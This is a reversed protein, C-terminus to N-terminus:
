MRPPTVTSPAFFAYSSLWPAAVLCAATALVFPLM